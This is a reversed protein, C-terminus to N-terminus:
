PFLIGAVQSAYTEQALRLLTEYSCNAEVKGSRIFLGGQTSRTDDSLTLRGTRGTQELLINAADVVGQGIDARDSTSLVLEETGTTCGNVALQALLSAREAGEMACLQAMVLDFTQSVLERKKALIEKRAELADMSDLQDLHAAAAARGQDLLANYEAEAQVAAQDLIQQIELETEQDLVAIEERAQAAIRATITEINNM